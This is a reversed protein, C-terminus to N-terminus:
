SCQSIEDNGIYAQRHMIDNNQSWILAQWVNDLDNWVKKEDKYYDYSPKEIAKDKQLTKEVELEM